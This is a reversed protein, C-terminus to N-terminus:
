NTKLYELNYWNIFEIILRYTMETKYSLEGCVLNIIPKNEELVRYIQYSIGAIKVVYGMSEIKYIIPLLYGFDEHFPYQVSNIFRGTFELDKGMWLKKLEGITKKYKHRNYIFRGDKYKATEYGMFKAISITNETLQTQTFENAKM